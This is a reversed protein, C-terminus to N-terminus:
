CDVAKGTGVRERTRGRPPSLERPFGMAVLSQRPPHQSMRYKKQLADLEAPHAVLTSVSSQLLSMYSYHPTCALGPGLLLSALGQRLGARLHRLKIRLM